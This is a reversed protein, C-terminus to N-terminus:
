HTIPDILKRLEHPMEGTSVSLMKLVHAMTLGDGRCVVIKVIEMETLVCDTYDSTWEKDTLACNDCYDIAAALANRASYGVGYVVQQHIVLHLTIPAPAPMTPEKQKRMLIYVGGFYKDVTLMDAIRKRM